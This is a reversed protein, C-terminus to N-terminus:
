AERMGRPPNYFHQLVRGTPGFHYKLARLQERHHFRTSRVGAVGARDKESLHSADPLRVLVLVTTREGLGNLFLKVALHLVAQQRQQEVGDFVEGSPELGGEMSHAGVLCPVTFSPTQSIKKQTM